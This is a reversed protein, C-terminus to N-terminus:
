CCEDNLYGPCHSSGTQSVADRVLGLARAPTLAARGASQGICLAAFCDLRALRVSNARRWDISWVTGDPDEDEFDDSATAKHLSHGIAGLM